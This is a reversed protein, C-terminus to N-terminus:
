STCNGNICLEKLGCVTGCSGCNNVDTLHNVCGSKALGTCCDPAAAPCASGTATCICSAMLCVTNPPCTNPCMPVRTCAGNVCSPPSCVKGCEGCNAPDSSFDFCGVTPCCRKQGCTEKTGPCLCQGNTCQDYNGCVNGCSGCNDRQTPDVCNRPDTPGGACCLRDALCPSGDGCQCKGDVCSENTGCARGCAGCNLPDTKTPACGGACCTDGGSCIGGNCGCAGAACKLPASCPQGCKGCNADDEGPNACQGDCCIPAKASCTAAGCVCGGDTCTGGCCAQTAACVTAGCSCVGQTCAEGLACAMGCGGCNFPDNETDVCGRGPCCAQGTACASGGNCRCAGGLCTDGSAGCAMGCGGCNQADRRTNSCAGACCSDTGSCEATLGCRQDALVLTVINGSSFTASRPPASALVENIGAGLAKASVELPPAEGIPPLLTFVFKAGFDYGLATDHTILLSRKGDGDFDRVEYGVGVDVSRYPLDAIFARPDDTAVDVRTEVRLVLKPDLTGALQYHLAVQPGKSCASTATVVLGLALLWRTQKRNQM